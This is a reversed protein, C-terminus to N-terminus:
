KWLSFSPDMESLLPEPVGSIHSNIQINYLSKYGWNKEDKSHPLLLM